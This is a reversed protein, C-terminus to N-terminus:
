FVEYSLMFIFILKVSWCKMVFIVTVKAPTTIFSLCIAVWKTVFYGHSYLRDLAFM